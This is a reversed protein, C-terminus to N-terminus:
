RMDFYHIFLRLENIFREDAFLELRRVLEESLKNKDDFEFKTTLILGCDSSPTHLILWTRPFKTIETYRGMFEEAMEPNSCSEGIIMHATVCNDIVEVSINVRANKCYADTFWPHDLDIEVGVGESFDEGLTLIESISYIESESIGYALEVAETVISLLYYYTLKMNRREIDFILIDTM